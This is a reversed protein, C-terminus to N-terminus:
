TTWSPESHVASHHVWPVAGAWFSFTQVRSPAHPLKEGVADAEADGNEGATPSDTLKSPEPDLSASPEIV